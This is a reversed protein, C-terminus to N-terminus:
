CYYRNYSQEDWQYKRKMPFKGQASISIHATAIIESLVLLVPPSDNSTGNSISSSSFLANHYLIWSESLFWVNSCCWPKAFNTSSNSCRKVLKNYDLQEAFIAMTLWLQLVLGDVLRDMKCEINDM